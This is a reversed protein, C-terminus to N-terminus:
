IQPWGSRYLPRVTREVFRGAQHEVTKIDPRVIARDFKMEVASSVTFMENESINSFRMQGSDWLLPRKLSQLRLAINGILITENLALQSELHASPLLRNEPSEKCARIFDAEHGGSFPNNIRHIKREPSLDMESGNRFIRVNEGQIGALLLGDSGVMYIGGEADGFPSDSPLDRPREPLLGGDYWYLKLPPMAVKPLHDRRNFSFVLKSTGPAFDLSYLSSSAQISAPANLKLSRFIPELLHPGMSGLVGNGFNWWGRWTFPTYAPHYPVIRAPGVFLDWDLDRPQRARSDALERGQPWLPHSTWAHVERVEGIAGSWILESIIRTGDGSAVQNGVQSVVNFVRATEVMRRAEYVSHALPPQVYVHKQRQMAAMAIVSHTHDPTAVVVADISKEQDLMVRYDRYQRADSWRRFSKEAYAWDVDCLAVINEDKLHNLNRFGVGGIGVVAINLKDSPAPHGFGAIVKSPLISIGALTTASLKVFDRRSVQNGKEKVM